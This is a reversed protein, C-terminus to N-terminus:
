NEVGLAHEVAMLKIMGREFDHGVVKLKTAGSASVVIGDRNTNLQWGAACGIQPYLTYVDNAAATEGSPVTFTNTTSANAFDTIARRNGAPSVLFGGNFADATTIAVESTAATVTTASGGSAKFTPAKCEFVLEPNDYVLIEAGNARPNLADASGPHAEAAIGLIAGTQSAVAAIVLGGSLQVVSDVKIDTSTAIPYPRATCGVHGGANQIPKM